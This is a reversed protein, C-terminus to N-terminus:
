ESSAPTSGSKDKDIYHVFIFAEIVQEYIIEPTKNKFKFGGNKLNIEFSAPIEIGVVPDTFTFECIEDMTDNTPLGVDNEIASILKEYTQDSRLDIKNKGTFRLQGVSSPIAIETSKLGASLKKSIKVADEKTVKSLPFWKYPPTGFGMIKMLFEAYKNRDNYACRLEIVQDNFHIVIPTHSAYGEVNNSYGRKRVTKKEEVLKIYVDNEDQVVSCIQIEPKLRPEWETGIQSGKVYGNKILTKIFNASTNSTHPFEKETKILTLNSGAFAFQSELYRLKSEHGEDILDQEVDEIDRSRHKIKNQMALKRIYTVPVNEIIHM